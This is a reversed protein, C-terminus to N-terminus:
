SSILSKRFVFSIMETKEVIRQIERIQSLNIRRIEKSNTNGSIGEIVPM